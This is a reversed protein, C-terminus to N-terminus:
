PATGPRRRREVEHVHGHDVPQLARRADVREAGVVDAAVDEAAQQVPRPHREPLPEIGGGQADHHRQQDAPHRPEHAALEVQRHPAQDVGINEILM